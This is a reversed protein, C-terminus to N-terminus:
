RGSLFGKNGGWFFFIYRILIFVGCSVILTGRLHLGLIYCLWIILFWSIVKSGRLGFAFAAIMCCSILLKWWPNIMMRFPSKVLRSSPRPQMGPNIGACAQRITFLTDSLSRSTRSKPTGSAMTTWRGNSRRSVTSPGPLPSISSSFALPPSSPIDPAKPHQQLPPSINSDKTLLKNLKLKRCFKFHSAPFEGQLLSCKLLTAKNM